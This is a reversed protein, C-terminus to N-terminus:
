FTGNGLLRRAKIMGATKIWQALAVNLQVIAFKVSDGKKSNHEQDLLYRQLNAVWVNEFPSRTSRRRQKASSIEFRFRVKRAM